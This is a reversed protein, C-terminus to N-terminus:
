HPWAEKDRLRKYGEVRERDIELPRRYSPDGSDRSPQTATEVVKFEWPLLCDFNPAGEPTKSGQITNISPAIWDVIYQRAVIGWRGERKEMRDIYRGGIASFPAGTKNLGSYSLYTECHAVTGDIEAFHNGIMHQTSSQHTSHLHYVWDWFEDASGVFMGHDDIADPHYASMVMTRDLRDTGRCYRVVVDLIEQRDMLYTLKQQMEELTM